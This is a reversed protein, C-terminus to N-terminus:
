ADATRRKSDVRKGEIDIGRLMLLVALTGGCVIGSDALNFIAFRSGDPGFVSIWDVVHGRLAGPSRLMRDALNGLAGGLVMGLAVAWGRSRLRRAFRVIVVVVVLAVLTLVVTMGTGLSFAAGSNRAADLYLAGDLLRVPEGGELHAVVIAKSVVDAALVVTAAVVFLGVRAPRRVAAPAPRESQAAPESAM